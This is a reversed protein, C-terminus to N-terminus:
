IQLSLDVYFVAFIPLFDNGGTLIFSPVEQTLTQHKEREALEALALQSINLKM